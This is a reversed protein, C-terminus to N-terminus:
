KRQKEQEMNRLFTINDISTLSGNTNKYLFIYSEILEQLIYFKTINEAVIFIYNNIALINTDFKSTSLEEINNVKLIDAFFVAMDPFCFILNNFMNLDFNEMYRVVCTKNTNQYILHNLIFTYFEVDFKNNLLNNFYCFTYCYIKNLVEFTDATIIIGHNKLFIVDVADDYVNEIEKSLIIGPTFYEVIKYNYAFNNLCVNLNSCLFINSLLFHLHVTYTKMFSHFFTEMSPNKYGFLKTSNLSHEKNEKFYEKCLNNNIVCYGINNETNGMVFGSSKIAMLDGIKVSLNGGVGQVNLTSQGYYKSLYVFDNIKKYYHEFFILLDNYDGFEVYKDRVQLNIGNIYHFALSVYKIPKLIDHEINDGIIFINNVNNNSHKKIKQLLNLYIADNPKEEGIEDSSIFIDIYSNLHLANLKNLQQLTNNNTIICIKFNKSKIHNLLQIVGSFLQINENFVKNYIEISQLVDCLPLNLKEFLQKIYICKNFKNSHNNSYKITKTIENFTIKCLEISINYKTLINIFTDNIAIENAYTYDYLTDDFDFVFYDM